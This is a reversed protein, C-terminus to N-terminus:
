KAEGWNPGYSSDAKLPVLLNVCTEMIHNLENDAEKAQPTSPDSGDLEDHVTLHPPGLADDAFVGAQWAQVMATKMIDAADGQLRANLAKHTFARQAGPVRHPYYSGGKEWMNFRRRRGTLTVIEGHRSAAEMAAHRLRSVFPVRQLYDHYMREARKLDVGLQAALAPIGLGYIIGFNISKASTRPLGTIAAVIAHYDTSSDTEYQRVVLDAGRLKLRAAHHIALRFEIQSWDKKWWRQGQDPLFISRTLPGLEGDRIPINQLNPNSSSFRGSVTGGQDSRLPHFSTHICGNVNGDLIYGQIFTGKFKDLRRAEVILRGAPHLCAALWDKRFSPKRTKETLPYQVGVADFIKAISEAAWIDCDMGAQRKLEAITEVQRQALAEYTQEAKDLDVRVGRKWMALLLPLLGSELEFLYWLNQKELEPRQLAFIRLPLDVDSEAYPGVVCAPARYINGKFNAEDRFARLMWKRMENERKGEGLWEKAINELSYSLRTEDLLPEAVQVDYFPGTVQVGEADLYALDYLLNAGVKPVPRKLERRLWDLVKDKPLNEGMEHRIPYYRRFGAETGVAVGCMYCDERNAGPGRQRLEPDKTEVDIAIMGQGELSPFETPMAWGTEPIPPLPRIGTYSARIYEDYDTWFLGEADDRM